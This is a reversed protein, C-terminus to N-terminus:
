FPNPVAKSYIHMDGRELGKKKVSHPEMKKSEQVAWGRIGVPAPKATARHITRDGDFTKM